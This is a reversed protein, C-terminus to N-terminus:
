MGMEDLKSQKEKNLWDIVATPLARIILAGLKWNVPIFV